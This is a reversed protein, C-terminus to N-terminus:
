AQPLEIHDEAEIEETSGALDYTAFLREFPVGHVEPIRPSPEVYTFRYTWRGIVTPGATDPDKGADFDILEIDELEDGKPFTAVFDEVAQGIEDLLDGEIGPVRGGEEIVVEIAIEAARKYERPVRCHVTSAERNTYIRIAPTKAGLTRTVRNGYVRDDVEPILPAGVPGRLGLALAHRLQKLFVGM